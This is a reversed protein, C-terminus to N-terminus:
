AANMDIIHSAYIGALSPLWNLKYFECRIYPIAALYMIM